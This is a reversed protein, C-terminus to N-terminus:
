ASEKNSKTIGIAGSATIEAEKREIFHPVSEVHKGATSTYGTPNNIFKALREENDKFRNLAEDIPLTM